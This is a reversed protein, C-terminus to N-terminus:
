GEEWDIIPCIITGQIECVVGPDPIRSSTEFPEINPCM